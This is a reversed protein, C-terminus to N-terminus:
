HVEGIGQVKAGDGSDTLIRSVDLHVLPYLKKGYVYGGLFIKFDGEFDLLNLKVDNEGTLYMRYEIEESLKDLDIAPPNGGDYEISFQMEIGTKFNNLTFRGLTELYNVRLSWDRNLEHVKIEGNAM